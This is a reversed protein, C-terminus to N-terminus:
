TRDYLFAGLSEKNNKYSFDKNSINFGSIKYMEENKYIVIFLNSILVDEKLIITLIQDNFDYKYKLSPIYISTINTLDNISINIQNIFGKKEICELKSISAEKTSNFEQEIFCSGLLGKYKFDGVYCTFYASETKIPITISNFSFKFGYMEDEKFTELSKLELMCLDYSNDSIYYTSEITNSFYPNKSNSFLYINIKYVNETIYAYNSKLIYSYEEYTNNNRGSLLFLTIILSLYIFIIKKM